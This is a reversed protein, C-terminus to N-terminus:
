KVFIKTVKCLFDEHRQMNEIWLMVYCQGRSKGVERSRVRSPLETVVESEQRGDPSLLAIDYQNIVRLLCRARPALQGM